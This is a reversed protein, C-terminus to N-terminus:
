SKRRKSGASAGGCPEANRRKATCQPDKQLELLVIRSIVLEMGLSSHWFRRTLEQRQPTRADFYASIVSTDLYISTM